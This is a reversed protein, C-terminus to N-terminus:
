PQNKKETLDLGEDQADWIAAPDNAGIRHSGREYKTPESATTKASRTKVALAVGCAVLLSCCIVLTVPWFYAVSTSVAGLEVSIPTKSTAMAATEPDVLASIASVGTTIAAVLWIVSILYIARGRLALLALAGALVALLAASAIPALSSGTLPEQVRPLGTQTFVSLVWVQTLALLGVGALGASVM